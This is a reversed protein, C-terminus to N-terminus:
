QAFYPLDQAPVAYRMGAARMQAEREARSRVAQWLGDVKLRGTSLM